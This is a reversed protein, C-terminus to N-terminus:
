CIVFSDIRSLYNKEAILLKNYIADAVVIKITAAKGAIVFDKEFASVALYGKDYSNELIVKGTLKVQYERNNEDVVFANEDYEVTAVGLYRAFGFAEVVDVNSNVIVNKFKINGEVSSASVEVVAGAYVADLVVNAQVKVDAIEIKENEAAKMKPAIGAVWSSTTHDYGKTSFNKFSGRTENEKVNLTINANQLKVDVIYGFAGGINIGNTYTTEADLAINTALVETYYAQGAIGGVFYSEDVGTKAAIFKVNVNTNEIKSGIALGVVGGISSNGQPEDDLVLTYAAAKIQAKVDVSITSNKAVAAVTGVRIENMANQEYDNFFGGNAVYAYVEDEVVVSMDDVKVDVIEADEVTGFLAINADYRDKNETNKYVFARFNSTNVNISINKLSHGKGNIHGNFPKDQNYLTKYEVGSFDIDEAIEFYCTDNYLVNGDADVVQETVVQGNEDLKETVEINGEADVVDVYTVNGDADVVQEQVPVLVAKELPKVETYGYGGIYKDYSAVDYILYPLEKSGDRDANLDQIVAPDSVNSVNTSTQGNGNGDAKKPIVSIITFTTLAITLVVSCILSLFLSRKKM